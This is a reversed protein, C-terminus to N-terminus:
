TSSEGDAKHVGRWYINLGASYADHNVQVRSVEEKTDWDYSVIWGESECSGRGEKYLVPTDSTYYVFKGDVDDQYATKDSKEERLIVSELVYHYEPRTGYIKVTALEKSVNTYIYIPHETDNRFVFDKDPYSVAADQSPDVYSVTMNHPSRQIITMGAQVVADYLTTSAQCVGGGFGMEKTLGAYEPAEQYGAAETRPGVVENFSITDGPNVSMLNFHDLALRVNSRSPYGRFTVDTECKAILKMEMNDSTITPLLVNVPLRTDAKGTMILNILNEKLADKDLAWGNVSARTIVPKVETLTVEADTPAQYVDNAISDIFSDLAAEDYTPKSTFEAPVQQLGKIIERRTARDGVHGMNWARELETDFSLQVNVSAPSFSWTRDQFTLDYITNLWNDRLGNMLDIGEQQTYGTLCVGNIYVNDVFREVGAERLRGVLKVSGFVVLAALVAFLALWLWAPARRAQRPQPRRTGARAPSAAQRQGARSAQVPRGGASM